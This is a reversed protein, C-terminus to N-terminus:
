VITIRMTMPATNNFVLHFTDPVMSGFLTLGMYIAVFCEVAMLILMLMEANVDAISQTLFM